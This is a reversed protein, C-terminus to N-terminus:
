NDSLLLMLMNAKSGFWNDALVFDFAVGNAVAQRVLHCFHENKSISAKRKIRKTELDSYRLDKEVVQYGIPVAHDGYRVMCNLVNIGKVHRGKAHSYHWCVISNEDTYSKEEITDDLLLLGESESQIGRVHPKNLSWLDRSGFTEVRLFYSVQDHSIEGNLLASLGTATAHSTKSILYDTYLNLMEKNM